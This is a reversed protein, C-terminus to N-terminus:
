SKRHPLVYKLTANELKAATAEGKLLGEDLIESEQLIPTFGDM